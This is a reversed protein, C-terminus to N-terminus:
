RPLTPSCEKGNQLVSALRCDSFRTSRTGEVTCKFCLDRVFQEQKAREMAKFLTLAIYADATRYTDRIVTYYTELLTEPTCPAFVVHVGSNLIAAPTDYGTTSAGRRYETPKIGLRDADADRLNTPALVLRIHSQEVGEAALQREIKRLHIDYSPIFSTALVFLTGETARSALATMQERKGDTIADWDLIREPREPDFFFHSAVTGPASMISGLLREDDRVETNRLVDDRCRPACATYLVALARAIGTEACSAKKLPRNAYPSTAREVIVSETGRHDRSREPAAPRPAIHRERVYSGIDEFQRVQSTFHEPSANAFYSLTSHLSATLHQLRPAVAATTQQQNTTPQVWAQVLHQEAPPLANFASSFSSQDSDRLAVVATRTEDRVYNIAAHMQTATGNLPWLRVPEPTVPAGQAINNNSEPTFSEYTSKCYTIFYSTLSTPINLTFLGDSKTKDDDIYGNYKPCEDDSPAPTDSSYAVAKVDSLSADTSADVVRGSHAYSDAAAAVPAVLTVAVLHAILRRSM